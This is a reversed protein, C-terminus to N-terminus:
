KDIEPKSIQNTQRLGAEEEIFIGLWFWKEKIEFECKNYGLPM